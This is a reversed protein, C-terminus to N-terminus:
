NKRPAGSLSDFWAIVTRPRVPVIDLVQRRLDDTYPMPQGTEDQIGDFRDLVVDLLANDSIAGNRAQEALEDVRSQPLRKFVATFSQTETAGTEDTFDLTVPWAYTKSQTLRFAM